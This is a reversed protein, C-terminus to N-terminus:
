EVAIMGKRAGAKNEGCCRHNGSTRKNRQKTMTKWRALLYGTEHMWSGQSRKEKKVTLGKVTEPVLCSGLFYKHISLM